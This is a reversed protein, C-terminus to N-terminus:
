GGPQDEPTDRDPIRHVAIAGLMDLPWAMFAPGPGSGQEEDDTDTDVPDTIIVAGGQFQPLAPTEIRQAQSFPGPARPILTVRYRM